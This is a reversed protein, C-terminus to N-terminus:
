RNNSNIKIHVDDTIPYSCCLLFENDNLDNRQDTLGIMKVKGSELYGKCTNCNGTQCSYPIEIGADLAEDLISEGKKVMVNARQGYLEITVKRNQINEFDKPDKVLEFDETYVANLSSGLETLVEKITNKLSLPGCIYNACKNLNQHNSFLGKVFEKSIRGLHSNEYVVADSLSYFNTITFIDPYNTKLQQLDEHFITSEQNKNGYILHLKVNSQTAIIEKILSYLPTIGSGVGWLYIEETTETPEFIFDGMPQMVEITDDIKVHDNIYNSVIGNPVRKITVELLSNASPSSSFSYPRVYKRGNIRFSLTLYQGAKYNIKRLSPQKFCLTVADKTEKKIQVVKLTYHNM